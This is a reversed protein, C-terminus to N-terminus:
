VTTRVRQRAIEHLCTYECSVKMRDSTEGRLGLPHTEINIM